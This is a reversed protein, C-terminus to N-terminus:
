TNQKTQLENIFSLQKIEMIYAKSGISIFRRKLQEEEKSTNVDKPIMRKEM